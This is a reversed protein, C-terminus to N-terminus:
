LKIIYKEYDDDKKAVLYHLFTNGREDCLNIDLSHQVLLEIAYTSPFDCLLPSRPLQSFYRKWNFNTTYDFLAKLCQDHQYKVCISIPTEHPNLRTGKQFDADNELLAKLADINNEYCCIHLPTCGNEDFINVRAKYTKILLRILASDNKRAAIHLLQTQTPYGDHIDFTPLNVDVMVKLLYVVLDTNHHALAYHAATWGYDNQRNPDCGKRTLYDVINISETSIIETRAILHLATNGEDTIANLQAGNREFEQIINLSPNPESLIYSLLSKNEEAAQFFPAPANTRGLLSNKVGTFTALFSNTTKSPQPLTSTTTVNAVSQDTRTNHRHKKHESSAGSMSPASSSDSPIDPVSNVTTVITDQITVPQENQLLNQSPSTNTNNNNNNDDDNLPHIPHRQPRLSRRPM